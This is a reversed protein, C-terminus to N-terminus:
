RGGLRRAGQRVRAQLQALTPLEPPLWARLGTLDAPPRVGSIPRAFPTSAVREFLAVYADCMAEVSYPGAEVSALARASTGALRAPDRALLAIREAFRRVDGVPVLFGNEGDRILERVGSRVDAVVPVAGHAMAELLSVPLGEFSSPLVFVDARSFLDLVADNPQAGVFRIRGDMLHSAAARLFDAQDPGGGAVVIEFDVGLATLADAICPLDLARKQHRAIRGAYVIRLPGPARAGRAGRRPMPVGYPITALRPALAPALATVERAIADSVAVIANWSDGLRLAHEYHPPDDSHVVGV